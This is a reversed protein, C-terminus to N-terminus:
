INKIIDMFKIVLAYDIAIVIASLILIFFFIKDDSYFITKKSNRKRNKFNRKKLSNIIYAM